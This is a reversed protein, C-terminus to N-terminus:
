RFQAQHAAPWNSELAGSPFETQNLVWCRMSVTPRPTRFHLPNVRLPGFMVFLDGGEHQCEASWTELDYNELAIITKLVTCWFGRSLKNSLVNPPGGGPTELETPSHHPRLIHMELLNRPPGSAEPEPAASQSGPELPFRGIIVPGRTGSLCFPSKWEM